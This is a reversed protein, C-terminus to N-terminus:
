TTIVLIICDPRNHSLNNLYGPVVGFTGGLPISDHDVRLIVSSEM